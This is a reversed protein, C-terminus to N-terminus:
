GASQRNVITYSRERCHFRRSSASWLSSEGDLSVGPGWTRTDELKLKVHHGILPQVDMIQAGWKITM